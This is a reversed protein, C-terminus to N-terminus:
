QKALLALRERPDFRGNYFLVAAGCSWPGYLIATGAKSWGTDATCWIRDEPM